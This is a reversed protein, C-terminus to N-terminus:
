NLDDSSVEEPYKTVARRMALDFALNRVAYWREGRRLKTIQRLVAVASFLCLVGIVVRMTMSIRPFVAAEAAALALPILTATLINIELEIADINLVPSFRRLWLKSYEFAHLSEESRHGGGATLALRSDPSPDSEDLWSLVPHLEVCEATMGEGLVQKMRELDSVARTKRKRRWWRVIREVRGVVAFGAARALYGIVFSGGIGLAAFLVTGSGQIKGLSSLLFVVDHGAHPVFHVGLIALETMAVIGPLIVSTLQLAVYFTLRGSMSNGAATFGSMPDVQGGQQEPRNM